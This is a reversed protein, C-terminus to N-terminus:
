RFDNLYDVRDPIWPDHIVTQDNVLPTTPEFSQHLLGKDCFFPKLKLYTKEHIVGRRLLEQFSMMLEETTFDYETTMNHAVEYVDKLDLFGFQYLDLAAQFTNMTPLTRRGFKMYYDPDTDKALNIYIKEVPDRDPIQSQLLLIQDIQDGTCRLDELVSRLDNPSLRRACVDSYLNYIIADSESDDGWCIQRVDERLRTRLQLLAQLKFGVQKTLRWWRGPRLNKLNDKFFCGLPRLEDLAMKEIIREEMQPPSATIFYIPFNVTPSTQKGTTPIQVKRALAHLLVDTGPINKKNMAKELITQLLGSLSDISTDLYTKDLDWVFVQAAEREVGPNTYSFFAVDGNIQARKQWHQWYAM